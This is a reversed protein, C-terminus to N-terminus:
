TKDAPEKCFNIQNEKIHIEENIRMINRKPREIGFLVLKPLTYKRGVTYSSQLKM